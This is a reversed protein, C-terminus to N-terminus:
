SQVLCIFSYKVMCIYYMYIFMEFKGVLECFDERTLKQTLFVYIDNFNAEVLAMCGDSLSGLRGCIALLRDM